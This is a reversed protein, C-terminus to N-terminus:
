LIKTKIFHLQGDFELAHVWDDHADKITLSKEIKSDPYIVGSYIDIWRKSTGACM